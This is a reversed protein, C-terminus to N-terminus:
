RLFIYWRWLLLLPYYCYLFLDTNLGHLRPPPPRPLSKAVVVVVVVVTGPMTSYLNPRRLSWKGLIERQRRRKWRRTGPKGTLRTINSLGDYDYNLGIVPGNLESFDAFFGRKGGTAGRAVWVSATTTYVHLEREWEKAKWKCELELTSLTKVKECNKVISYIIFDM